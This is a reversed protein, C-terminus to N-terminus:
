KNYENNLTQKLKIIEEAEQLQSKKTDLEIRAKVLYSEFNSIEKSVKEKTMILFKDFGHM